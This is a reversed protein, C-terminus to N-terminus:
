EVATIGILLFASEGDAAKMRERMKDGALNGTMDLALVVNPDDLAGAAIRIHVHHEAPAEDALTGDLALRQIWTGLKSPNMGEPVAVEQVTVIGNPLPALTRDFADHATAGIGFTTFGKRQMTM